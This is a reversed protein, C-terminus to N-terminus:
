SRALSMILRCKVSAVYIISRQINVDGYDNSQSKASPCPPITALTMTKGDRTIRFISNSIRATYENENLAAIQIVPQKLKQTLQELTGSGPVPRVKGQNLKLLQSGAIIPDGDVDTRVISPIPLHVDDASTPGSITPEPHTSDTAKGAITEVSGGLAVKRVVSSNGSAEVTVYISKQDQSVAISNPSGLRVKTAPKGDGRRLNTRDHAEDVKRPDAGAVTLRRGDATIERIAQNDYDGIFVDGKADAALSEPSSFRQTATSGSVSFTTNKDVAISISGNHPLRYVLNSFPKGIYLTGDPTVALEDPSDFRAETPKNTQEPKINQGGGAIITFKGLTRKPSPSPQDSAGGTCGAATAGCSLLAVGIRFAKAKTIPM